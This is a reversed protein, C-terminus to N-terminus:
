LYEEFGEPIDDFDPAIKIQGEYGGIKRVPQETKKAQEARIKYSLLDLFRAVESFYEEPIAKIKEEIVAYPM